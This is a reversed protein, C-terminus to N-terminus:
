LFLAKNIMKIQEEAWEMYGQRDFDPLYEKIATSGRLASSFYEYKLKDLIEVPNKNTIEGFVQAFEKYFKPTLKQSESALNYLLFNFDVTEDFKPYFIGKKALGLSYRQAKPLKTEYFQRNNGKRTSKPVSYIKHIIISSDEYKLDEDTEIMKMQKKM